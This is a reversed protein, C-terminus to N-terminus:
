IHSDELDCWGSIFIGFSLDFKYNMIEGIEGITPSQRFIMQIQTKLVYVRCNRIFTGVQIVM